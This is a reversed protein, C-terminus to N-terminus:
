IPTSASLLHGVITGLIAASLVVVGLLVMARRQPSVAGSSRARFTAPIATHPTVQGM